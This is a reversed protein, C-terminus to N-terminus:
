RSTTRAWTTGKAIRLKEQGAIIGFGSDLRRTIGANPM